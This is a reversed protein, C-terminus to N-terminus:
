ALAHRAELDRMASAGFLHLKSISENSHVDIVSEVTVFASRTSSTTRTVSSGRLSDLVTTSVM